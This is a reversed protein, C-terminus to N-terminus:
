TQGGLTRRVNMARRETMTTGFFVGAPADTPDFVVEDGAQLHHPVGTVDTSYVVYERGDSGSIVGYGEVVDFQKVTGKL